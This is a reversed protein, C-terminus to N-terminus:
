LIVKVMSEKNKEISEKFRVEKTFLTALPAPIDTKSYESLAALVDKDELGEVNNGLSKM